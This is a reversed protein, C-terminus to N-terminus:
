FVFILEGLYFGIRLKGLLRSWANCLLIMMMVM